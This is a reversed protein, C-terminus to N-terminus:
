SLSLGRLVGYLGGVWCALPIVAGLALYELLEVGRRAVPSWRTDADIMALCLAGLGAVAAVACVWDVHRPQSLLVLACAATVSAMGCGVFAGTRVVSTQQRARLMLVVGVVATFAADSLWGGGRRSNAAVLVAGLTTSAAFGILLGTLTKGGRVARAAHGEPPESEDKVLDDATPMAPSLGAVVISLKAAVALMALALAAVVAGLIRASSSWVVAGAAAIATLTSFAAVATFAETGCATIRLLLVSIAASAAAALCLNPAGPGAPVAMFGTVWAYAIAVVGLTVSPLAHPHVRRSVVAATAATLMAVGATVAHSNAPDAVRSWVLATAGFGAAWICAAAGIIPSAQENRELSASLGVIAQCAEDFVPKSAAIELTSLLLLDGDRVGNDHLTMSEDLARGGLRSMRWGRVGTPMSATAMDQSGVLDVISPILLGVDSGTPLVLDVVIPQGDRSTHVSVRCLDSIMM